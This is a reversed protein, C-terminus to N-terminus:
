TIKHVPLYKEYSQQFIRPAERLFAPNVAPRAKFFEGAEWLLKPELAYVRPPAGRNGTLVAKSVSAPGKGRVVFPRSVIQEPEFPIPIDGTRLKDMATAYHGFRDRYERASQGVGHSTEGLALMMQEWHTLAPEKDNWYDNLYRTPDFPDLPKPEYKKKDGWFLQYILFGLAAASTVLGGIVGVSWGSAAITGITSLVQTGIEFVDYATAAMAAIWDPGYQELLSLTTEVIGRISMNEFASKADSVLANIVAQPQMLTSTVIDTLSTSSLLKMGGEILGIGEEISGRLNTVESTIRSLLEGGLSELEGRINEVLMDSQLYLANLQDAGAQRLSAVVGSVNSLEGLAGIRTRYSDVANEFQTKFGPRFQDRVMRELESTLTMESMLYVFPNTLNEPILQEAEKGSFKELNFPNLYRKGMELYGGTSGFHPRPVRLDYIPSSFKVLTM